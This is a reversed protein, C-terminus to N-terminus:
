VVGEQEAELAMAHNLLRCLVHAALAVALFFGPLLVKEILQYVAARTGGAWAALETVIALGVLCGGIIRLTRSNAATFASEDRRLRLCMALFEGWALAWLLMGPIAMASVAANGAMGLAVGLYTGAAISIVSAAALLTFLLKPESFRNKM